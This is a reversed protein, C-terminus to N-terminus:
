DRAAAEWLWARGRKQHTRGRALILRLKDIEARGGAGQVFAQLGPVVHNLFTLEERRAPVLGEPAAYAEIRDRATRAAELARRAANLCGSADARASAAGFDGLAREFAAESQTLFALFARAARSDAPATSRRGCVSIAILLVLALPWSTGKKM